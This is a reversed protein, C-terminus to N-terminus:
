LLLVYFANKKKFILVEKIILNYMNGATSITFHGDKTDINAGDKTWKVVPQPSGDCQIAITQNDTEFCEIDDPDDASPKALFFIKLGYVCCPFIKILFDLGFFSTFDRVERILKLFHFIDLFFRHFQNM